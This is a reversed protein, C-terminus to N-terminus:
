KVTPKLKLAEELYYVPIAFSVGEVGYGMLKANVIGILEGEKNTLAGGSNGSNVSVDSQIFTKGEVNRKASIIGKTISQGLSIDRPTGIAYVDSGVNIKKSNNIKIPVRVLTDVKLLALDYAANGRVFSCRRKAGSNFIAFIESTDAGIVHYNTVIYCDNSIICGSGHGGKQTVTVVANTANELTPAETSTNSYAIEANTEAIKKYKAEPNIFNEKVKEDKLIEIIVNELANSILDVNNAENQQSQDYGIYSKTFYDLESNSGFFDPFKVLTKLEVVCFGDFKHQIIRKVTLKLDIKDYINLSLKDLTDIYNTRILFQRLPEKFITHEYTIEDDYSHQQEVNKNQYDNYSDYNKQIFDKKLVNMAVFDVNIRADEKKRIPLQELKGLVIRNKGKRIQKLTVIQTNSRYKENELLILTEETNSKYFGSDIGIFITDGKTYNIDNVSTNQLSFRFGFGTNLIQNESYLGPKRKLIRISTGIEKTVFKTKQTKGPTWIFTLLLLTIIKKVM